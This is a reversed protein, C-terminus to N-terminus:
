HKTKGDPGVYKGLLRGERIQKLDMEAGRQMADQFDKPWQFDAFQRKKNEKNSMRLRQLLYGLSYIRPEEKRAFISYYDKHTLRITPLRPIAKRPWVNIMRPHPGKQILWHPM